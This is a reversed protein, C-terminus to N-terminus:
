SMVKRWLAKLRGKNDASEASSDVLSDMVEEDTQKAVTAEEPQASDTPLLDLKFADSIGLSAALKPRSLSELDLRPGSIKLWLLDGPHHGTLRPIKDGLAIEVIMHKRLNTPVQELLGDDHLVQFGKPGDNAEAFTVTYPTGIYSMLGIAGKQPRGCKIDQARHYHGSIVRYDALIEKEVASHDYAYEGAASGSVGQHMILTAGESVHALAAKFAEATPQYPIFHMGLYQAPTDIIQAYPSLFNLVHDAGKENILDHNGVLVAVEVGYRNAEVFTKIMSNVCEGRLIAKTDHLDGAVILPVGLERAKHIAQQMASDALQLTNSNYHIDSILVARPTSM